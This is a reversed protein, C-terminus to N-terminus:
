EIKSLFVHETFIVALESVCYYHVHCVLCLITQCKCGIYTFPSFCVHLM